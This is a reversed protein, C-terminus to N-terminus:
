NAPHSGALHRRRGEVGRRARGGSCRGRDWEPALSQFYAKQQRQIEKGEDKAKVYADADGRTAALGERALAGFFAVWYRIERWLKPAKEPLVKSLEDAAANSIRTGGENRGARERGAFARLGHM